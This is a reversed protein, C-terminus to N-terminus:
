RQLKVISCLQCVRNRSPEGCLECKRIQEGKGAKARLAPLLKLFNRVLNLRINPNTKELGALENRIRRRFVGESCPCPEYVVPFDMAQCYGKTEENTCFYLPKIRQVFRSDERYGTKPGMGIGLMPNGKLINMLVTESEDNLNHGTALKDAHLERAKKNLLWRKVVGCVTCNSLKKKEQVSSRIYCISSGFEARLDV